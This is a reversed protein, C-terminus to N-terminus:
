SAPKNAGVGAFARREFEHEQELEEKCQDISDINIEPVIIDNNTRIEPAVDDEEVGYTEPDIDVEAAILSGDLPVEYIGTTWLQIPSKSRATHLSHDNWQGKFHEIARNLRPTFVLELAFLHTENLPDLIEEDEMWLFLERFHGTVYEHVDKWLREIRQDHVSRGTLFPKRDIGFQALMLKAVEINEMGQDSRVRRPWYFNSVANEFFGKVTAAKNNTCSHLYIIM